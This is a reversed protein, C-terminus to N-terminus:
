NDKNSADYSRRAAAVEEGHSSAWDSLATLPGVVSRGLPTLSYEVRPPVEAFAERTVLGDRVLQRLTLSLMRPSIGDIARSLESFRYTRDGLLTITLVSWKDGVRNILDRAVVCVTDVPDDPGPDGPGPSETSRSIRAAM